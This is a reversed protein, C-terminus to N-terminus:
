MSPRRCNSCEGGPHRPIPSLCILGTISPPPLLTCSSPKPTNLFPLPEQCVAEGKVAEQGGDEKARLEVMRGDNHTKLYIQEYDEHRKSIYCTFILFQRFNYFVRLM